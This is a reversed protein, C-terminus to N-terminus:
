PSYDTKYCFTTWYRRLNTYKNKGFVLLFSELSDNILVSRSLMHYARDNLTCLIGEWKQSKFHSRSTQKHFM